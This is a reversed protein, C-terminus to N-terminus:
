KSGGGSWHRIWFHGDCDSKSHKGTHYHTGVHNLEYHPINAIVFSQFHMVAENRFHSGVEYWCDLDTIGRSVFEAISDPHNLVFDLINTTLLSTQKTVNTIVDFILKEKQVATYNRSLEAAEVKQLGM